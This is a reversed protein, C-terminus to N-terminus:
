AAPNRATVIQVALPFRGLGSSLRFPAMHKDVVARAQQMKQEPVGALVLATDDMVASEPAEVAYDHNAVAFGEFGVAELIGRVYVPDAFVFPGTSSKGPAPQPPPPVFEALPRGIFWPNKAPPQWCAFALRGGPALHARINAFATKPEDFFMVGFQSMAVDFPGGEIRDQQVDKVQFSINKAGSAAARKRSLEILPASIDAGVVKGASGVITAAARTAPGGGCGVDLVREGPKLALAQMLLPTVTETFRERRPWHESRFPDNWRDREAQNAPM